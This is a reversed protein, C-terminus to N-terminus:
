VNESLPFCMANWPELYERRQASMGAVWALPLAM